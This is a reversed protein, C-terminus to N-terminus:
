AHLETDDGVTKVELSLTEGTKSRQDPASHLLSPDDKKAKEKKADAPAAPQAAAAAGTDATMAPVPRSFQEHVKVLERGLRDSAKEMGDAVARADDAEDQAEALLAELRERGAQVALEIERRKDAIQQELLAQARMMKEGM